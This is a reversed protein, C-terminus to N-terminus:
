RQKRSCRAKVCAFGETSSFRRWASWIVDGNVDNLHRRCSILKEQELPVRKCHCENISRRVLFFTDDQHHKHRRTRGRVSDLFCGEGSKTSKTSFHGARLSKVHLLSHAFRLIEMLQILVFAKGLVGTM